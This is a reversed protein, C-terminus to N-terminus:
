FLEGVIALNEEGPGSSAMSTSPLHTCGARMSTTSIKLTTIMPATSGYLHDHVFFNNGASVDYMYLVEDIYNGYIYFRKPIGSGNYEVLVQWDKGHYYRVTNNSDVYANVSAFRRKQTM